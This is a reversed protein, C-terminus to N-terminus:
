ELGHATHPGTRQGQVDHLAPLPLPAPPTAAEKTSRVLEGVTPNPGRGTGTLSYRGSGSDKGDYVSRTPTGGRGASTVVFHLAGNEITGESIPNERTGQIARGTIATGDQKLEFFSEQFTGDGNARPVRFVWYGTLNAQAYSLLAVGALAAAVVLLTLRKM